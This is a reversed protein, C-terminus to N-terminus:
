LFFYRFGKANITETAVTQIVMSDPNSEGFTVNQMEFYGSRGQPGVLWLTFTNGLYEPTTFGLRKRCHDNAIMQHVLQKHRRAQLPEESLM